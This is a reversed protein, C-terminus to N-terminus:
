RPRGSPPAAGESQERSPSSLPSEQRARLLALLRPRTLEPLTEVFVRVIRLREMQRKLKGPKGTHRKVIQQEHQRWTPPEYVVGLIATSQAARYLADISKPCEAFLIAEHAGERNDNRWTILAGGGEDWRKRQSAVKNFYCRPDKLMDARFRIRVYNDYAARVLVRQCHKVLLNASSEMRRTRYLPIM